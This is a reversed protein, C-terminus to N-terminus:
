KNEEEKGYLSNNVYNEYKQKLDEDNVKIDYSKRLEILAESALKSDDAIKQEVIKKVIYDKVADLSPKAKQDTKYIIHYGYSTQVAKTTYAGVELKKAAEEFKDEMEGYNFSGLAGGNKATATDESYEKALKAFDEGNKLKDLVENIKTLAKNAAEEKEENTMSDTISVKILIHSATIDGFIYNDYYNKIEKDKILSEVYKNTALERKYALRIVREQFDNISSYGYKQLETLFTDDSGYAKRYVEIQDNVYSEELEDTPYLDNLIKKDMMEVLYSTGYDSKLADFLENATINYEKKNFSVINKEGDDITAQRGCGVLFMVAIALFGYKLINKM